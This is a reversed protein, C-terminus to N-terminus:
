PRIYTKRSGDEFVEDDRMLGAPTWARERAIRGRTDYVTESKIKGQPDYQRHTGVPVPAYRGNDAYSSEGALVGSDYFNRIQLWREGGPAVGYQARSRPQGNLYFTDEGVLEGQRWRRERVPAGNAAFEQEHERVPAANPRVQWSVERRLTGDSAFSREVYGTPTPEQQQALQGNDYFTDQRVLRGAAFTVRARLNGNDAYLPVVPGPGNGAFGCPRSDDFAPALLPKGGCRLARLQGSPTFEAAALEGGPAAHFSVRQLQQTGPHFSRALGVRNGNSYSAERLLLGGAADFERLLGQLNGQANVSQERVLRGNAYIRHLGAIRGNQVEQEQVLQGSDRDRCRMTGSKGALTSPSAPRVAEGAIECDQVAARAGLPALVAAAALGLALAPTRLAARSASPARSLVAVKPFAAMFFAPSRPLTM